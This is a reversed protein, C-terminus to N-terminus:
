GLAQTASADNELDALLTELLVEEEVALRNSAMAQSLEPDWPTAPVAGDIGPLDVGHERAFDLADRYNGASMRWPKVGDLGLVYGTITLGSPDFDGHYRLRAGSAALRELMHMGLTTPTGFTCILPHTVNRDAAAALVRPNECVAIRTGPTVLPELEDPRMRRLERRTIHTELGLATRQRLAAAWRDDGLIPLAWTMLTTSVEDVTIACRNWLDRRARADDPVAVHHAIAAARHVLATLFHGDDLAHAGGAHRSALDGRDTVASPLVEPDLHMRSLVAAARQALTDPSPHRSIRALLGQRRVDALWPEVWVQNELRHASLAARFRSESEDLNAQKLARNAPRSVLPGTLETLVETLTMGTRGERLATDLEALDVRVRAGTPTRTGLLAALERAAEVDPVPIAIKGTPTLGTSQLRERARQWLGALAPHTLAKRVAPDTLPM